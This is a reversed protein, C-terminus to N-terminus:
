HENSALNGILVKNSIQTHKEAYTCDYKNIFKCALNKIRFLM